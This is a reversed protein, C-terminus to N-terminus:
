PLDLEANGKLVNPQFKMDVYCPTLTHGVIYAVLGSLTSSVLSSSGVVFSVDLLVCAFPVVDLCSLGGLGGGGFFFADFSLFM